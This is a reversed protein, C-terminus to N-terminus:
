QGDEVNITVLPAPAFDRMAVSAGAVAASAM